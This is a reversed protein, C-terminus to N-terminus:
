KRAYNDMFHFQASRRHRQWENLRMSKVHVRIDFLRTATGAAQTSLQNISVRPLVHASFNYTDKSVENIKRMALTM